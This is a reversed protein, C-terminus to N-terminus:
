SIKRHKWYERRLDYCLLSGQKGILDNKWDNRSLVPPSWACTPVDAARSRHSQITLYDCSRIKDLLNAMKDETEGGIRKAVYESNGTGSFYLIMPKRRKVRQHRNRSKQTMTDWGSEFIYGLIPIGKGDATRKTLFIFRGM